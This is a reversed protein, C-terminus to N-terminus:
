PGVDLPVGKSEDRALRRAGSPCPVICVGCGLCAEVDYVPSGGEVTRCADFACVRVCTGCSVCAQKDILVSYGSSAINTLKEKSKLKRALKM